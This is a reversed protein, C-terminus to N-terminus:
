LGLLTQKPVSVNLASPGFIQPIMGGSIFFNVEKSDTLFLM